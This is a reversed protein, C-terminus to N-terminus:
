EETSNSWTAWGPLPPASNALTYMCVWLMKSSNFKSQLFERHTEARAQILCSVRSHQSEM